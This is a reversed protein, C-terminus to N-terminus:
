LFGVWPNGIVVEEKFNKVLVAKGFNQDFNRVWRGAKTDQDVLLKNKLRTKQKNWRFDKKREDGLCDFNIDRVRVEDDHKIDTLYSWHIMGRHFVETNDMIRRNLDNDEEGWGEFKEPYGGLYMFDQRWMAIRGHCGGGKPFFVDPHNMVLRKDGYDISFSRQLYSAFGDNIFNDADVNCIVDGTAVRISVNRSHPPLFHEATNEKYFNLRGSEIYELLNERVWQETGDTSNYDLLVFELDDCDDNSKLNNVITEKLYELRNMSTTCLSIKMADKHYNSM